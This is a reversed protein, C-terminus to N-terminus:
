KGEHIGKKVVYDKLTNLTIINECIFIESLDCQYQNEIAMIIKVMQLSELQLQDKIDDNVDIMISDVIECEHAIIMKIQEIIDSMM